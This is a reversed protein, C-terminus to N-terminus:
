EGYPPYQKVDKMRETPPYEIKWDLRKLDDLSLDYRKLVLYDRAVVEWSTNEVVSADFVYVNLTGSHSDRNFINEYCGSSFIARKNEQEGGKVKFNEDRVTYSLKSIDFPDPHFIPHPSISKIRLPNTTNNSFRIATHCNESEKDQCKTAMCILSVLLLKIINKM